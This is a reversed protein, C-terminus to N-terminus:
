APALCRISKMINRAWQSRRPENGVGAILYGRREAVAGEITTGYRFGLEAGQYNDKLFINM